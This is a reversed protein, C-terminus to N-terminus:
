QFVRFERNLLSWFRILNGFLNHNRIREFRRRIDMLEARQTGNFEPVSYEGKEATMGEHHEPYGCDLNYSSFTKELWALECEPIPNEPQLIKNQMLAGQLGSGRARSGEFTRNGRSIYSIAAAPKPWHLMSDDWSLQLQKCLGQLETEPDLVFKEFSLIPWGKERFLMWDDLFRRYRMRLPPDEATNGNIGYEKTILSAFAHRVDRTILFPRVSFGMDSYVGAVDTTRFSGVTMKVWTYRTSVRSLDTQIVSNEMDFVGDMDPRQLFCWSVPSTGGSQLGSCLILERKM